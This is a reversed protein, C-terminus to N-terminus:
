QEHWTVNGKVMFLGRSASFTFRVPARLTGQDLFRGLEGTGNRTFCERNGRGYVSLGGPYDVKDCTGM